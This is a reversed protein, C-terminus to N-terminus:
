HCIQLTSNPIVIQVGSIGRRRSASERPTKLDAAAHNV